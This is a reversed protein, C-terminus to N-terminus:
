ELVLELREDWGHSAGDALDALMPGVAARDPATM